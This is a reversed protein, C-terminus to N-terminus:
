RLYIKLLVEGVLPLGQLTSPVKDNEDPLIPLQWNRQQLQPAGKVTRIIRGSKLTIAPKFDNVLDMMFNPDSATNQKIKKRNLPPITRSSALGSREKILIFLRWLFRFEIHLPLSFKAIEFTNHFSVEYDSNSNNDDM